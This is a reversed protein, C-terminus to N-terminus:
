ELLHAAAKDFAARLAEYREVPLPTGLGKQKLYGRLKTYHMAPIRSDKVDLNAAGKSTFVIIAGITAEDEVNPANEHIYRGMVRIMAEAERTPNGLREQGFFRRLGLGTQKWVDGQATITITGSQYKPLFLVPGAPLLLVHPAPLLYHYMRGNRAIGQLAEDLVEDPRPTKGYRHFLYLGM